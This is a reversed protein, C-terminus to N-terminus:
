RRKIGSKNFGDGSGAAQGRLGKRKRRRQTWDATKRSNRPHHNAVRDALHDFHHVKGEFDADSVDAGIGEQLIRGETKFNASRWAACAYGLEIPPKRRGNRTLAMTASPSLAAKRREARASLPADTDVAACLFRSGLPAAALSAAEFSPEEVCDVLQMLWGHAAGTAPSSLWCCPSPAAAAGAIRLMTGGSRDRVISSPALPSEPPSDRDAGVARAAARPSLRASASLRVSASHQPKIREASSM